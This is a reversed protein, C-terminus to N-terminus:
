YEEMVVEDIDDVTASRGNGTGCEERRKKMKKLKKLWDIYKKSVENPARFGSM